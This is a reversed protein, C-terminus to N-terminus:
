EIVISKSITFYFTSGEGVTSDVWINGGHFEVIRHCLALGIGTGPYKDRSYLRKFLEFIRDYYQEEIGIGNDKIYFLWHSVEEKFGINIIPDKESRFKISNHILNYFLQIIRIRVGNIIPINFPDDIIIQANSEKIAIELNEKVEDIINAIKIIEFPKDKRGVRSFDLLEKILNRMREVADTVYKFYKHDEDNFEGCFKDHLFQSYIRIIRLPEQLDHSTIYAFQELERNKENLEKAAERLTKESTTVKDIQNRTSIAIGISQAVGEMFTVFGHSIMGREKGNLQLVGLIGEKGRLPIIAVSEYGSKNCTGRTNVSILDFLDIDSTSNTWFSGETTFCPLYPNKNGSLVYGCLCDLHCNGDGNYTCLFNEKKLFIDSFGISTYYPFDDGEKLRIAIADFNTYKKIINIIEFISDRKEMKDNLIKLVDIAIKNYKEINKEYTADRHVGLYGVVKDENDYLPSIKMGITFLSGDKRRNLHFGRYTMGKELTKIINDQIKDKDSEANFIDPYKGIIEDRKYGMLKELANNVYIIKQDTDTVIIADELQAMIRKFFWLRKHQSM